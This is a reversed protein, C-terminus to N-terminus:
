KKTEFFIKDVQGKRFVMIADQKSQKIAKVADMIEILKM